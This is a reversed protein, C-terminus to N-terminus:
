RISFGRGAQNMEKLKSTLRSVEKALMAGDKDLRHRHIEDLLWNVQQVQSYFDSVAQVDCHSLQGDPYSSPFRAKM